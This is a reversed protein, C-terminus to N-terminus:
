YNTKVADSVNLLSFAQTSLKTREKSTAIDKAVSPFAIGARPQCIEFDFSFSSAGLFEFSMSSNLSGSSLYCPFQSAFPLPLSASLLFLSLTGILMRKVSLVTHSLTSQEGWEETAM